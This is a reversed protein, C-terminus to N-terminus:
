CKSKKEQININQLIYASPKSGFCYFALTQPGVLDDWDKIKKVYEIM